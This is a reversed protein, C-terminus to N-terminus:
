FQYTPILSRSNLRPFAIISSILYFTNIIPSLAKYFRIKHINTPDYWWVREDDCDLEYSYSRITHSALDLLEWVDLVYGTGFVLQGEVEAVYPGITYVTLTSSRISPYQDPLGAILTCYEGFPPFM